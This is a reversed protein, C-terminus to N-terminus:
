NKMQELLDFYKAQYKDIEAQKQEKFELFARKHELEAEEKARQIAELEHTKMNDIMEKYKDNEKKLENYDKQFQELQELKEQQEKSKELEAELWQIKEKCTNILDSLVMYNNDKESIINKLDNVEKASAEEITKVLKELGANKDKLDKTNTIAENEIRKAEKLREQM